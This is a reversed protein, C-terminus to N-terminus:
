AFTNILYYRQFRLIENRFRKLANRDSAFINDCVQTKSLSEENFQENLRRLIEVLWLLINPLSRTEKQEPM